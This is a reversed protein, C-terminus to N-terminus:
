AMVTDKQTLAVKILTPKGNRSLSPMHQTQTSQYSFFAKHFTYTCLVLLQFSRSAETFALMGRQMWTRGACPLATSCREYLSFSELKQLLFFSRLIAM